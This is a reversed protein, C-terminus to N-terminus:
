GQCRPALQCNEQQLLRLAAGAKCSWDEACRQLLELKQDVAQVAQLLEVEEVEEANVSNMEVVEEALQEVGENLANEEDVLESLLSVTQKKALSWGRRSSESFARHWEDVEEDDKLGQLEGQLLRNEHQV